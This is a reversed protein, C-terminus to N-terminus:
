NKIELKTSFYKKLPAITRLHFTVKIPWLARPLSILVSIPLLTLRNSYNIRFCIKKKKVKNSFQSLGDRDKASRLQLVSSIVFSKRCPIPLVFLQDQFKINVSKSSVRLKFNVPLLVQYKANQALYFIRSFSMRSM